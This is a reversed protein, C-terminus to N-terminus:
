RQEEKMRTRVVLANFDVNIEMWRAMLPIALRYTGGRYTDLEVLGLERLEAIDDALEVDRGVRLGCQEFQRFLFPINVADSGSDLRHCLALILQRRETGAYNWLTRLDSGHVMEVVARDLVDLTITREGGDVAQDFVRSCLLQILFPHGACLNVLCDRAQPLYRLRGDVPETVLQRAHDEPLASVGIRYGLGFLASWYEERLKKLRRSGTLIAGLGAQHQLLHRINELLQAGTVGRDTGERLKDFEDIMLLIRRPKAARIAAELYLELTEFSRGVVVARRLADRFVIKFPKDSEPRPLDPIWTEIGADWLAEATRLALRRYVDAAAMGDWAHLSCYVPIWGPLAGTKSLQRLISTKGTRWNGELLVVNAHDGGLYRRIRDVIDARGFFMGPRDVPNGVIYPSRGLDGPDDSQGSSTM